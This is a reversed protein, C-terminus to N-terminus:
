GKKLREIISAGDRLCAGVIPEFTEGGRDGNTLIVVGDGTGPEVMVLARVGEDAGTHLWASRGEPLGEVVQWGLGMHLDGVGAAGRPLEQLLRPSLVAGRILAAAFGAYDHVTTLLDDSALATRRPELAYAKGQADYGGVFRQPDLADDWTFHTDDLALPRLLVDAAIADIPKGFRHELAHRLYEMGEGSYQEKAGPDFQFALRGDPSLTRWNPFGTRHQLVHRTTLVRNRPDAAIEPDVWDSALPADLSWEGREVLRLTTMAVIPKTLSAVNFRADLTAPRSAADVGYVHEHAVRGGRIVAIGLARVAYRERLSTALGPLAAACRDGALALEAPSLERHGYSLVRTLRWTGSQLRWVMVFRAAGVCQGTAIECFRHEGEEIAGFDKVPYVTLSGPVLERRVKGCIWRRTNEVVTKRDWTVGSADHYFEVDPAFLTGFEDLRCANYADFLRRDLTAITETLSEASAAADAARAPSGAGSVLLLLCALPITRL